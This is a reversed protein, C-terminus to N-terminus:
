VTAVSQSYGISLAIGTTRGSAYIAMTARASSEQSTTNSLNLLAFISLRSFIEISMRYSCVKYTEFLMKLLAERQCNLVAAENICFSCESPQIKLLRFFIYDFIKKM